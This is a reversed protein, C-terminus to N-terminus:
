INMHACGQVCAPGLVGLLKEVSSLRVDVIIIPVPLCMAIVSGINPIYNLVFALIGFMIALKVRSHTRGVCVPFTLHYPTLARHLCAAAAAGV